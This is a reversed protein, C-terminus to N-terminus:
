RPQEDLLELLYSACDQGYSPPEGVSCQDRFQVVTQWERAFQEPNEITRRLWGNFARVLRQKEM